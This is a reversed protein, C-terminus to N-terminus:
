EAREGLSAPTLPTCTVFTFAKANTVIFSPLAIQFVKLRPEASISFPDPGRASFFASAPRTRSSSCSSTSARRSANSICCKRPLLICMLSFTSRIGLARSAASLFSYAWATGPLSSDM